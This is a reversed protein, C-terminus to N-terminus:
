NFQVPAFDVLDPIMGNNFFDLFINTSEQESCMKYYLYCANNREVGAQVEIQDDLVRAQIYRVKKIAKPATLIIHQDEDDLMIDLYELIDQETINEIKENQNELSFEKSERMIEFAKEETQNQIKNM